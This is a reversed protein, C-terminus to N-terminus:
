ARKWEQKLLGRKAMRRYRRDGVPKFEDVAAFRVAFTSYPHRPRKLPEVEWDKVAFNRTSNYRRLMDMLSETYGDM